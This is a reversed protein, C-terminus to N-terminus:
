LYIDAIVDNLAGQALEKFHSTLAQKPHSIQKLDDLLFERTHVYQNSGDTTTVTIILKDTEM